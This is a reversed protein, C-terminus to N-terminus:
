LELDLRRKAPQYEWGPLVGPVTADFPVWRDLLFAVPYIHSWGDADQTQIIRARVPIGVAKFLVALVVLFDDCDGMGRKLIEPFLTFVELGEPDNVYRVHAKAWEFIRRALAPKNHGNMSNPAGWLIEALVTRTFPLGYPGPELAPRIANEKLIQVKQLTEGDMSGSLQYTKPTPEPGGFGALGPGDPPTYPSGYFPWGYPRNPTKFTEFRAADM